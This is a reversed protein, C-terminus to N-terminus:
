KLSAQALEYERLFDAGIDLTPDIRRFATYLIALLHLGSYRGPLAQLTYKQEPSVIDLGQESLRAIELAIQECRRQGLADFQALADAIYRVVDSRVAGHDVCRLSLQAIRTRAEEAQAAQPSDPFRAILDACLGDAQPLRERGLTELQRVLELIAVPDDPRRRLADIRQQVDNALSRTNM